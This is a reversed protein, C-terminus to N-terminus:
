FMQLKSNILTRQGQFIFSPFRDASLLFVVLKYWSCESISTQTQLDDRSYILAARYM